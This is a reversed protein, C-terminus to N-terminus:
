WNRYAVVDSPSPLGNIVNTHLLLQLNKAQWGSPLPKLGQNLHDPDSVFEAAARTGAKDIGALTISFAGTKSQPVRSVLAYDETPRGHKDRVTTRSRGSPGIEHIYKARDFVFPLNDDMQLTWSNNFAGILITQSQRVDKFVIEGSFRLDYTKHASWLMSVISAIAAADGVGVWNTRDLILDDANFQQGPRYHVVYGQDSSEATPASRKPNDEVYEESLKYRYVGVSGICIVPATSSSVVPSWFSDFASMPPHLLRDAVLLLAAMAALVGKIQIGRRLFWRSRRSQDSAPVASEDKSVSNVPPAFLAASDVANQAPTSDSASKASRGTGPPSDLSMQRLGPQSIPRFEVRYSGHPIELEVQL